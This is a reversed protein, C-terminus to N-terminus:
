TGKETSENKAEKKKTVYMCLMCGYVCACADM